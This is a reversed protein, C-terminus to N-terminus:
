RASRELGNPGGLMALVCAELVRADPLGATKSKLREDAQACIRLAHALQAPSWKRAQAIARPVASPNMRARQAISREEGRDLADRVRALKRLQVAIFALTLLGPERQQALAHILSLARPLDRDAVAESLEFKGAGRATAVLEDVDADTIARGAAFAQLRDLADSLATLNAGVTLALTAAAGPAFMAGRRAAEDELWRALDREDPPAAEFLYGRKKADLAFKIRTDLKEALLVLVTSPTPAAFYPLFHELETPRWEDISRALVLRWTSLMPLMRCADIVRAPTSELAEFHDESLGRPGEGVTAKRIAEVARQVLMREPGHIVYVAQPKGKAVADIARQLDM